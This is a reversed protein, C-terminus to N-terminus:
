LLGYRELYKKNIREAKKKENYLKMDKNIIEETVQDMHLRLERNHNGYFKGNKYILEEETTQYDILGFNNSGCYPCQTDNRHIGLQENDVREVDKQHFTQKCSRCQYVGKMNEVTTM